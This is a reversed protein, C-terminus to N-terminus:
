IYSSEVSIYRIYLSKMGTQTVHAGEPEIYNYGIKKLSIMYIISSQWSIHCKTKIVPETRQIIWIM